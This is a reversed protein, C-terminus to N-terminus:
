EATPKPPIGHKEQLLELYEIFSDWHIMVTRPPQDKKRLDRPFMVVAQRKETLYDRAWARAEWTQRCKVQINFADLPLVSVDWLHGNERRISRVPINNVVWTEAGTGIDKARRM